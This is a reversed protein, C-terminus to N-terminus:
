KNWKKSLWVFRMKEWTCELDNGRLFHVFAILNESQKWSKWNWKKNVDKERKNSCLCDHSRNNSRCHGPGGAIDSGFIGNQNFAFHVFDTIENNVNFPEQFRDLGAVDLELVLVIEPRGNQHQAGVQFHVTGLQLEVM